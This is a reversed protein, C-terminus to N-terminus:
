CCCGPGCANRDPTLPHQQHIEEATAERISVIKVSFHLTKGAFPHNGDLTVEDGGISRIMLNKGDDFEVVQGTEIQVAEKAFIKKDIKIVLSANYIGYAEEPNLVLKKQDGTQMGKLAVELAALINNHGHLYQLPEYGVNTDVINGDDDNATYYISVVKNKSVRM